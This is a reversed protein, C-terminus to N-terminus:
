CVELKAGGSGEIITCTGNFVIRGSGQSTININPDLSVNGSTLNTTGVVHLTTTPSSTGIGVNGNNGQVFLAHTNTNSEVRFDYDNGQENIVLEATSVLFSAQPSNADLLFPAKSNTDDLVAYRGNAETVRMKWVIGAGSGDGQFYIAGETSDGKVHMNGLPEDIGIGVRNNTSDVFLTNSANGFTYNGTATDGSRVLYSANYAGGSTGVCNTGDSQCLSSNAASFNGLSQTYSLLTYSSEDDSWNGINSIIQALTLNSSGNQLTSIISRTTINAAELNVISTEHSDNITDVRENLTINEQQLDAVQISQNFDQSVIFTYNGFSDNTWSGGIGLLSIVSVNLVRQIGNGVTFLWEYNEFTNTDVPTAICDGDSELLTNGSPCATTVNTDTNTDTDIANITINGGNHSISINRGGILTVRSDNTIIHDSANGSTNIRFQYFLGGSGSGQLDPSCLFHTGNFYSYNGGVCTSTPYSSIGTLGSGNGFFHDATLNDGSFNGNRVYDQRNFRDANTVDLQNRPVAALVVMSLLVLFLSIGALLLATRGLSTM